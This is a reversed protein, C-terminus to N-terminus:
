VLGDPLVLMQANRIELSIGPQLPIAVERLDFFIAERMMEPWDAAKLSM